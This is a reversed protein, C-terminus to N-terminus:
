SLKINAAKLVKEAEKDATKANVKSAWKELGKLDQETQTGEGEHEILMKRQEEIAKLLLEKLEESSKLAMNRFCPSTSQDRKDIIKGVEDGKTVVFVGPFGDFKDCNKPVTDIISADPWSIAYWWRFLLESILKGKKSKAYLESSATQLAYTTSSSFSNSPSLKKKKTKTAKKKTATTKKKPKAKTKAKVPSKLTAIPKDDEEDSDEDSGSGSGSDEELEDKSQFENEESEESENDSPEKYSTVSRRRSTASSPPITSKKLASLPLDDDSSSSESSSTNSLSM